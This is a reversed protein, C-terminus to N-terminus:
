ALATRRLALAYRCCRECERLRLSTCVSGSEVRGAGAPLGRDVIGIIGEVSGVVLLGEQVDAVGAVALEEWPQLRRGHGRLDGEAFACTTADLGEAVEVQRPREV